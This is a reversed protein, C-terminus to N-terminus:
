EIIRRIRVIESEIQFVAELLSSKKDYLLGLEKEIEKIERDLIKIEDEILLNKEINFILDMRGMLAEIKHDIDLIERNKAFLANEKTVLKRTLVRKIFPVPDCEKISEEM